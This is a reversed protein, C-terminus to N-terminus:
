SHEQTVRATHIFKTPVSTATHAKHSTQQAAWELFHQRHLSCAHDYRMVPRSIEQATTIHYFLLQFQKLTAPLKQFQRINRAFASSGNDKLLTAGRWGTCISSNKTKMCYTPADAFNNSHLDTHRITEQSKSPTIHQKANLSTINKTNSMKFCGFFGHALIFKLLRKSHICIFRYETCDDDISLFGKVTPHLYEGVLYADHARIIVRHSSFCEVLPFM